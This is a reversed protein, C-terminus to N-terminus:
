MLFIDFYTNKLARSLIKVSCFFIGAMWLADLVKLINFKRVTGTSEEKKNTKTPRRSGFGTGM